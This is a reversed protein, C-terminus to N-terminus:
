VDFWNRTLLRKDFQDSFTMKAPPSNKLHRLMRPRLPTARHLGADGYGDPSYYYGDDERFGMGGGMFSDKSKRNSVVIYIIMLILLITFCSM